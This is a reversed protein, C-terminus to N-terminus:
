RNELRRLARISSSFTPDIRLAERYEDIAEERRGTEVLAEGLSDHTNAVDPYLEANLRFLALAADLREQMLRYGAANLLDPGFDYYDPWRRRLERYLAIAAGGGERSGRDVLASRIDPTEVARASDLVSADVWFVDGQGNRPEAARAILDAFSLPERSHDPRDDGAHNYFLYRGCPSLFPMRTQGGGNIRHGLRRAPEWGGLADRFSVFLGDGEPRGFSSLIIYREEPDIFHWADFYPSNVAPGLDRPESWGGDPLPEAVFIDLNRPGGGDRAAVAFYANGNEAFVPMLAGTRTLATDLVPEGWDDGSRDVYWCRWSDHPAAAGPDPRRSSFRLRSGGRTFCPNDDRHRGSFPAVEPGTWRGNARRMHLLTHEVAGAATWFVENGDPSFVAASHEHLGTSITGRGFLRPEPGPPEEGLYDGDLIMTSGPRAPDLVAASMRYIDNGMNQPAKMRDRISAINRPPGDPDFEQFRRGTFFIWEGDPSFTPFLDNGDAAYLEQLPRPDTWPGGNERFSVFGGSRRPGGFVTFLLTNGDPSISPRTEEAESNVAAGLSVPEGWGTGHRPLLFLDSGGEGDASPIWAYGNGEADFSYPIAPDFDPFREPPGFGGNRREVVYCRYYPLPDDEGGDPRRSRFFVRRGGPSWVPLEDPWRGSFPATEPGIWRGGERHIRLIVHHDGEEVHWLAENGDPSFRVAGAEDLGTSVLGAAFLGPSRGPERRGEPYDIEGAGAPDSAALVFLLSAAVTLRARDFM